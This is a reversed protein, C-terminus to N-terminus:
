GVKGPKSKEAEIIRSPEGDLLITMGVKLSGADVPKSM